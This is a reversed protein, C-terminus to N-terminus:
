YDREKRPQRVATARYDNANRTSKNKPKGDGYIVACAIGIAIINMMIATGGSSAFPLPFGTPPLFNLVVLMNLGSQMLFWMGIGVGILMTYRSKAYRAAGIICHYALTFLLLAFIIAGIFGLEEAITAFAYDTNAAPINWKLRGQGWGVGLFGAKGLGMLTEATQMGSGDLYKMPNFWVLIREMRYSGHVFLSGILLIIAFALCILAHLPEAGAIIWLLYGIIGIVAATGLDKQLFMISLFAIGITGLAFFYCKPRLTVRNKGINVRNAPELIAALVMILILKLFESPQISVPGVNIWRFAHNRETGLGPIRPGVMCFLGILMFAIQWSASKTNEIRIHFVGFMLWLILLGFAGAGLQMGVEKWESHTGRSFSTNFIFFIGVIFLILALSILRFVIAVRDSYKRATATRSDAPM